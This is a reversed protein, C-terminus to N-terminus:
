ERVLLLDPVLKLYTYIKPIFCDFRCYTHHFNLHLGPVFNVILLKLVFTSTSVKHIPM